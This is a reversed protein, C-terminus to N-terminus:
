TVFLSLHICLSSNHTPHLCSFFPFTLLYILFFLSLSTFYSLFFLLLLLQSLFIFSLLSFMCFCSSIFTNGTFLGLKNHETKGHRIIIILPRKLVDDVRAPRGIKPDAVKKLKAPLTKLPEQISSEVITVPENLTHISANINTSFFNLKAISSTNIEVGKNQNSNNNNNNDINSGSITKMDVSTSNKSSDKFQNISIVQDIKDKKVCNLITETHIVSSKNQKINMNLQISDPPVQTALFLLQREHELKTLSQLLQSSAPSYYHRDADASVEYRDYFYHLHPILTTMDLLSPSHHYPYFAIYKCVFVCVYVCVCVCMCVCVCVCVCVCACACARVCMCVRVYKGMSVYLWNWRVSWLQEFSVRPFSFSSFSRSSCREFFIIHTHSRTRTHTHNYARTCLYIHIYIYIYIHMYMDICTHTIM